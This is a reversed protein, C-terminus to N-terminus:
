LALFRVIPTKKFLIIMDMMSGFSFNLDFIVYLGAIIVTNKDDFEGAHHSIISKNGSQKKPKLWVAPL